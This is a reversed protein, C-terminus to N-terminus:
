VTPTRFLNDHQTKRCAMDTNEVTKEKREGKKWGARLHLEIHM